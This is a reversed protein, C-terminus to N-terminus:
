TPAGRKASNQLRMWKLSLAHLPWNKDYACMSLRSRDPYCEQAESIWACAHLVRAKLATASEAVCRCRARRGAGYGCARVPACVAVSGHRPPTPRPFPNRLRWRLPPPGGAERSASPFPRGEAACRLQARRAPRGVRRM